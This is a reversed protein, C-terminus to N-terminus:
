LGFLKLVDNTIAWVMLALVLVLGVHSFRIRAEMSLPRGRVAEIGLFLLHGGDLVPIPLLNLIALNISIIAMFRLFIELGMRATEGSFQAIAIPGGLSRPSEQGSLLRGVTVVILRSGSWTEAFGRGVAEVPGYSLHELDRSQEIGLYGIPADRESGAAVVPEAVLSFREGDREVEMALPREAHRRVVGVLEMWSGVPEGGAQVVRDGAQLGARDAPGGREVGGIRPETFPQLASLWAVRASDGMPIRLVVPEADAFRFTAPGAPLTIFLQQLDNWSSVPRDGVSVIEAGRPLGRLEQPVEGPAPTFDVRTNRDILDGYNFALFTYLVAAFLFNMFVGAVLVMARAWLPKSDFDRDSPVREADGAGELVGQAEEEVMGAMKVYGGLPLLSIVYETEGWQFGAVRPGFGISFRPVEIDVAKAALLHGLEHVFILVGIVVLFALVELV